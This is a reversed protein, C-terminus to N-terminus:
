PAPTYVVDGLSVVGAQSVKKSGSQNMEWVLVSSAHVHVTFGTARNTQAAPVLTIWDSSYRTGSGNNGNLRFATIQASQNVQAQLVMFRVTPPIPPGGSVPALQMFIPACSIYFPLTFNGNDETSCGSVFVPSALTADGVIAEGVVPQQNPNGKAALLSTEPGVPTDRCGSATALSALFLFPIAANARKM